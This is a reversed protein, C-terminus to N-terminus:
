SSVSYLFIESFVVEAEVIIEKDIMQAEKFKSIIAKLEDIQGCFGLLAQQLMNESTGLM